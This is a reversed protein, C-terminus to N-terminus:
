RDIGARLVDTPRGDQNETALDAKAREIRDLVDGEPPVWGNAVARLYDMGSLVETILPPKCDSCPSYGKGAIDSFAHVQVTRGELHPCGYTHYKTGNPTVLVCRGRWFDSESTLAEIELEKKASLRQYSASQLALDQNEELLAANAIQTKWTFYGLISSLCLLFIIAAVSFNRFTKHERETRRRKVESKRQQKKQQSVECEEQLRLLLDYSSTEAYPPYSATDLWDFLLYLDDFSNEEIPQSKKLM